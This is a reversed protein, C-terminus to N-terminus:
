LYTSGSAGAEFSSINAACCLKQASALSVAEIDAWLGLSDFDDSVAVALVVASAGFLEVDAEPTLCRVCVADFVDPLAWAVAFLLVLAVSVRFASPPQLTSEMTIQKKNSMKTRNTTRLSLLAVKHAFQCGSHSGEAVNM